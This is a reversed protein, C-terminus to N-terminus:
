CSGDFYEALLNDAGWYTNNSSFVAGDPVFYGKPWYGQDLERYLYVTHAKGVYKVNWARPNFFLPIEVLKNDAKGFTLPGVLGDASLGQSRQWDKTAYTTNPGFDCDIDAVDYPTGNSEIAGDAFLVWQWLQTAGSNRFHNSSLTGEDGWDDTIVGIGAVWGEAVTAHAPTAGMMITVTVAAGLLGAWRGATRGHSLM